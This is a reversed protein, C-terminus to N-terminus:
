PHPLDGTRIHIERQPFPIEIGNKRFASELAELYNATLAGPRTNLRPDVWVALIFDLSNDGFRELWVDMQRDTDKLTTHVGRAADLVVKKVKDVDSHYAVSFPIRLRRTPDNHTWNTVRGTVFESNPVVVDLNDGTRILTSRVRIEIVVGGLGQDLEIYDGVKLSKEFLIIFGSFFNNFISQMGMGIGVSLATAIMALKSMDVGLASLAVVIGVVVIAYHIFRQIVYLAHHNNEDTETAIREFVVRVLRTFWYLASLAIVAFIINYTSISSDGFTVLPESIWKLKETLNIM